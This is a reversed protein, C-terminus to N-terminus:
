ISKIQIKALILNVLSSFVENDDTGGGGWLVNHLDVQLRNLMEHTFSTELDKDSGKIFPEKQIKDYRATLSDVYNREEEWDTFSPYKINDIVICEDKIEEEIINITYLVLYKVENGSAKEMNAVKFVQEEITQDKNLVEYDKPSKLEIFFFANDDSDRVIIDIRSTNTHPRGATYENEVTIRDLPYGLDNALRTLLYARVVEEDGNLSKINKGGKIEDSYTIKNEIFSIEEVAKVKNQEIYNKILLKQEDTIKM